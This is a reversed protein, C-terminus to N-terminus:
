WNLDKKAAARHDNAAAISSRVGLDDRRHFRSSDRCVVYGEAVFLVVLGTRSSSLMSIASRGHRADNEPLQPMYSHNAANPPFKAILAM